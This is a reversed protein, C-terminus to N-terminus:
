YSIMFIRIMSVIQQRNWQNTTKNKVCNCKFLLRTITSFRKGSVPTCRPSAAMKERMILTVSHVTYNIWPRLSRTTSQMVSLCGTKQSHPVVQGPPNSPSHTQTKHGVKSTAQRSKVFGPTFICRSLTNQTQFHDFSGNKLSQYTM